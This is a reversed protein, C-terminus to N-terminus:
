PFRGAANDCSTKQNDFALDPRGAGKKSGFFNSLNTTPPHVPPVPLPSM